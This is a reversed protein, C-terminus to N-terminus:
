HTLVLSHPRTRSIIRMVSFHVPVPIKFVQYKSDLDSIKWVLVEPPPVHKPFPQLPIPLSGPEHPPQPANQLPVDTNATRPESLQPADSPLPSSSTSERPMQLQTIQQQLKIHSDMLDKIMQVLFHPILDSNLHFNSELRCLRREWQVAIAM